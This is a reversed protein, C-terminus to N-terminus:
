LLASKLHQAILESAGNRGVFSHRQLFGDARVRLQGTWERRFTPGDYLRQLLDRLGDPDWIYHVADEYCAFRREGDLIVGIAPVGLVMGEVALTSFKTVLVDAANLAHYPLDSQPIVTVNPAQAERVMLEIAGPKHSPHPKILLRLGPNARAVGLMAELIQIQEASAMYGRSFYSPECLVCLEVDEPIGLHRRSATKTFQAKFALVREMWFLGVVVMASEPIDKDRHLQEIHAESIAYVYDVPVLERRPYPDPIQYPWGPQWFLKPEAGIALIARHAVVGQWLVRTWLRAARAPHETWFTQWAYFMRERRAVDAQFHIRMSDWLAERLLLYSEGTGQLFLARRSRAQRWSVWTRCWSDLLLFWSVWGELALARVGQRHLQAPVKGTDWCLAVGQLGARDLAQVLPVTHNLHKKAPDCLQIVVCREPDLDLRAGLCRRLKAMVVRGSFCVEKALPRWYRWWRRARDALRLTGVSETPIGARAACKALLEDEWTARASRVILVREPRHEALLTTYSRILLLGDQIRQTTDGGECYEVWFLLGPEIGGPRDLENFWDNIRAIIEIVEAAVNYFSEAKELFCVQRVEAWAAAQKQVVLDDSAVVLNSGLRERNRELWFAGAVDRCVILEVGASAVTQTPLSSGNPIGNSEVTTM